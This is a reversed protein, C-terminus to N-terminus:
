RHALGFLLARLAKRLNAPRLARCWDQRLSERLHRGAEDWRRLALAQRMAAQCRLAAYSRRVSQCSDPLFRFVEAVFDLPEGSGVPRHRLSSPHKNVCVMVHDIRVIRAHALLYAFVPIDERQRLSEPYPRQVLLQKRAVFSGHGLGVRRDVLYAAIRDCPLDPVATPQSVKETGDTRRTLQAGVLLDIDPHDHLCACVADLTGPMMEDDADLFLVYDSRCLRLGHNRAAAAGQNEQRVYKFCAAPPLTLRSIIGSTDDTSGDDIVIMEVDNRWQSVMSAICRSLLHGYNYTPVVISFTFTNAM